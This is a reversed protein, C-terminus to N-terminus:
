SLGIKRIINAAALGGTAPETCLVPKMFLGLRRGGSYLQVASTEEWGIYDDELDQTVLKGGNM